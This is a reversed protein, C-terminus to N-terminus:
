SASTSPSAKLMNLKTFPAQNWYQVPSRGAAVGKFCFLQSGRMSPSWMSLPGFPIQPKQCGLWPLKTNILHSDFAKAKGVGGHVM